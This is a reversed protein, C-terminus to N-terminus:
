ISIWIWIWDFFRVFIRQFIYFFHRFINFFTLSPRFISIFSFYCYLFERRLWGMSGGIEDLSALSKMRSKIKQVCNKMMLFTFPSSERKGNQSINWRCADAETLKMATCCVLAFFFHCFINQVIRKAIVWCNFSMSKLIGDDDMRFLSAFIHNEDM